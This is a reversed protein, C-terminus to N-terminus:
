DHPPTRMIERARRLRCRLRGVSLAAAQQRRRLARGMGMRRRDAASLGKDHSERCGADRGEERLRGAARGAGVALQLVAGRGDLHRRRGAPQRSRAHSQRHHRLSARAQLPPVPRQESGDRQSLLRAQVRRRAAVRQRAPGARAAPQGDHFPRDADPAVAARVEHARGRADRRHAVAGADAVDGRRAAARWSAAHREDKFDVFGAKRIEIEHTTAVLRLTQNAAGSPKGDIFLQADAPQARVAVEGFVGSLPVALTRQEGASM